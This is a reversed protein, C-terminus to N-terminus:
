LHCASLSLCSHQGSRFPPLLSHRASPFFTPPSYVLLISKINIVSVAIDTKCNARASVCSDLLRQVLVERTRLVLPPQKGEQRKWSLFDLLSSLDCVVEAVVAAVVVVVVAVTELHHAVQEVQWALIKRKRTHHYIKDHKATEEKEHRQQIAQKAM